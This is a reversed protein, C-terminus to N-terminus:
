AKSLVMIGTLSGWPMDKAFRNSFMKYLTLKAFRKIQRKEDLVDNTQKLEKNESFQFSDNEEEVKYENVIINKNITMTHYVYPKNDDQKEEPYFLHCVDYLDNEIKEYNTIIKM